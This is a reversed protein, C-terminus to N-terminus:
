KPEELNHFFLDIEFSNVIPLDDLSRLKEKDWVGYWEDGRLCIMFRVCDEDFGPEAGLMVRVAAPNDVIMWLISTICPEDTSYNSVLTTRHLLLAQELTLKKITKMTM